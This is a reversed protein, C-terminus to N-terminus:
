RQNTKSHVDGVEATKKNNLLKPGQGEPHLKVEETYNFSKM